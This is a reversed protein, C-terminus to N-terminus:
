SVLLNHQFKKVIQFHVVTCCFIHHETALDNITIIICKGSICIISCFAINICFFIAIILVVVFSFSYRRAVVAFIINIVILRILPAM